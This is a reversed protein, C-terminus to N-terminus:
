QNANRELVTQHGFGIFLIIVVWLLIVLKIPKVKTMQTGDDVESSMPHHLKQIHIIHQWLGMLKM